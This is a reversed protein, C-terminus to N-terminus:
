GESLLLNPNNLYEKLLNLAKQAYVGDVVRHDFAFSIKLVPKLVPNGEEDPLFENEIRGMGVIAVEPQNIIPTSWVGGTAAGGVNTVTMSGNSMEATSIKGENAKEALKSVTDAIEFLSLRDADKVVPVVLGQPTDAAVGINYYQHYYIEGADLNMSANLNPFRKLVAVLAKVFYATYTLRIDNEGAIHKMENRHDVLASVEVKDFVTVHPSTITSNVMANAIARRMPTIKEVRDARSSEEADSPEYPKVDSKPMSVTASAETTTETTEQVGSEVTAAEPNELYQDIDEILIKGHNGTGKVKTLDVNNNRAYIRVRPVALTRWDDSVEASVTENEKSPGTEETKEPAAEPEPKEETATPTEQTESSGGETEISAVAEDVQAMEGEDYHKEKLVGSVPSPLEVLAKDSQMELLIDDEKVEDGIDFFWTVIESEVTGEGADPLIVDYM